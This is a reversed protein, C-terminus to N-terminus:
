CSFMTLSFIHKRFGVQDELLVTHSVTHLRENNIGSCLKYAVNLLCMERYNNMSDYWMMELGKTVFLYLNGARM